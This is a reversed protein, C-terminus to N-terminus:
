LKLKNNIEEISTQLDKKQQMLNKIVSVYDNLTAHGFYLDILLSLLKDIIEKLKENNIHLQLRLEQKNKLDDVKSQPIVAEPHQEIYTKVKEISYLNYPDVDKPVVNYGANLNNEEAFVIFNNKDVEIVKGFNM